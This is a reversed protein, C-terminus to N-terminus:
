NLMQDVLKAIGSTFLTFFIASLLLVNGISFPSSETNLLSFVSAFSALLQDNIPPGLLKYCIGCIGLLGLLLHITLCQTLYSIHSERKVHKLLAAVFSLVFAILVDLIMCKFFSYDWDKQNEKVANGQLSPSLKNTKYIEDQLFIAWIVGVLGIVVGAVQTKSVRHGFLINRALLLLCPTLLLLMMWNPGTALGAGIMDSRFSKSFLAIFCFAALLTSGFLTKLFASYKFVGTRVFYYENHKLVGYSYWQYLNQVLIIILSTLMSYILFM